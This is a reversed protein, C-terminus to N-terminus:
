QLYFKQLMRRLFDFFSQYFTAVRSMSEINVGDQVVAVDYLSDPPCFFVEMSQQFSPSAKNGDASVFIADYTNGVPLHATFSYGHTAFRRGGYFTTCRSHDERLCVKLSYEETDQGTVDFRASRFCTNSCYSYCGTEVETCKSTDVFELLRGDDSGVLTSAGTTEIVATPKMSGDLDITYVMSHELENVICFDISNPGDHM